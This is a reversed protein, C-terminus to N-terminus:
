NLFPGFGGCHGIVERLGNSSGFIRKEIELDVTRKFIRDSTRDKTLSLQRRADRDEIRNKCEPAKRRRKEVMPLNHNRGKRRASVARCVMWRLTAALKKWSRGNGQTRKKPQRRHGATLRRDGSRDELAGVTEVEAEEYPTPYRLLYLSQSRAPRRLTRLELGPLALFQRKEVDDLGARPDVWGGIWHTGATFRGPRSASWEDGVLASTLFFPSRYM